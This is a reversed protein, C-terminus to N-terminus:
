FDFDEPEGLLKRGKLIKDVYLHRLNYGDLKTLLDKDAKAIRRNIYAERDDGVERIYQRWVRPLADAIRDLQYQIATLRLAERWDHHHVFPFTEPILKLYRFHEDLNGLSDRHEVAKIHSIIIQATDPEEFQKAFDIEFEASNPSPKEFEPDPVYPTRDPHDHERTVDRYYEEKPGKNDPLNMLYGTGRMADYFEYWDPTEGFEGTEQEEKFTHYDQWDMCEFELYDTSNPSKLFQIFLEVEDMEVPPLFPCEMISRGFVQFDYSVLIFPLELGGARWQCQLNFLKKQQIHELANRAHENFVKNKPRFDKTYSNPYQLALSKMFAYGNIFSKWFHKNFQQFWAKLKDDSELRQEISQQIDEKTPITPEAM